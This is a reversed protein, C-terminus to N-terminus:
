NTGSMFELDKLENNMEGILSALNDCKAKLLDKLNPAGFIKENLVIFYSLIIVNDNSVQEKRVIIYSDHILEANFQIGRFDEPVDYGQRLRETKSSPDYDPHARFYDLVNALTIQGHNKLYEPDWWYSHDIEIDM